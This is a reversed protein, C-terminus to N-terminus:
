FNYNFDIGYRRPLPMSYYDFSFGGQLNIAYTPEDNEELNKVWLSATYSGNNSKLILKANSETHSDARIQDYGYENNYPSFWQDDIFHSDLHLSLDGLRSEALLVDIALSMNLEPAALLENGSLDVPVGTAPDALMLEDYETNLYGISAHLSIRESALATLELEFGQITSSGANVLFQQVGILNLFQQDKYDNYFLAANLQLRQDLWQSKLGIEYTDVLEPSTKTIENSGFQAGGNLASSRYGRRYNAYIMRFDDLSYELGISGSTESDDYSLTAQGPAILDAVKNHDYDGFWSYVDKLDGQDQTYRLGASVSLQDNIAYTLHSYIAQSEREQKYHQATTFGTSTLDPVFPLGLDETFLLFEFQNTTKIEDKSFYLGLISSLPGDTSSTLRLDQSLQDVESSWDVEILRNPSGDGNENLMEGSSWGSISTLTYDGLDWNISLAISDNDSNYDGAKNEASQWANYNSDVRQPLLGGTLLGAIDYGSPGRGESIVATAKPSNEGTQLRLTVDLDAQQYRFSLRTAWSDISSLDEGAFNTHYGDSKSYTAAARVALTDEVLVTNGAADIHQYNNDGISLNLYGESNFNPAQTIFNIAGGTTNKGYLTGQPGRLVEVREIDFLHLAQMFSVGVTAEDVYVGIPSAQNANYDVMSLGRLSFIPQSEGYPMTAIMNPTQAAIENARIMQMEQLADGTIATVSLPAKQLNETRKQSTITIEELKPSAHLSLSLISLPILLLPKALTHKM